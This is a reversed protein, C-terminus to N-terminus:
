SIMRIDFIADPWRSRVAKLQECLITYRDRAGEDVDATPFDDWGMPGTAHHLMASLEGSCAIADDYSTAIDLTINSVRITSANRAIDGVLQIHYSTAPRPAPPPEPIWADPDPSVFGALPDLIQATVEAQKTAPNLCVMPAPTLSRVIIASDFLRGLSDDVEGCKADPIQSGVYAHIANPTQWPHASTMLYAVIASSILQDRPTPSRTM